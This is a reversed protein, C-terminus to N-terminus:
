RDRSELVASKHNHLPSDGGITHRREIHVSDSKDPHHQRRAWRRQERQLKGAQLDGADLAAWDGDTLLNTVRERALHHGMDSAAVFWDLAEGRDRPRGYGELLCEALMYAASAHGLEAASEFLTFAFDPDAAEVGVGLYYAIGLEYTATM